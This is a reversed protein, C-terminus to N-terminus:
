ECGTAPKTTGVFRTTLVIGDGLDLKLQEKFYRQCKGNIVRPEKETFKTVTVEVSAFGFRNHSRDVLDKLAKMDCGIATAPRHELEITDFGKRFRHELETYSEGHVIPTVCKMGVVSMSTSFTTKEVDFEIQAFATTSLSILIMMLTKM